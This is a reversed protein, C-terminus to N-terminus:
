PVRSYSHRQRKAQQMEINVLNEPASATPETPNTSTAMSKGSIGNVAARLKKKLPETALLFAGTSAAPKTASRRKSRRSSKNFADVDDSLEGASGAALNEMNINTAIRSRLAPWRELFNLPLTAGRLSNIDAVAEQIEVTSFSSLLDGKLNHLKEWILPWKEVLISDQDGSCIEDIADLTQQLEGMVLCALDKLSDRKHGMRTSQFEEVESEAPVSVFRKRWLPAIIELVANKRIPAKSIFGHARAKYTKIDLSSDNASRVLGLIRAEEEPNLNSRIRQICESGSITSQIGDETIDLNEDVILLFKDLPHREVLQIIFNVFSKCEDSTGGLVLRRSPDIGAYQFFPGLLKRQIKSDDIAIGWTNSPLKFTKSNVERHVKDFCIAPCAFSFVTRTPEFRISAKGKLTEACKRMIWAGDGASLTKAEPLCHQAQHLRTGPAFVANNAEEEGVILLSQHRDGPNNIVDMKFLEKSSDFYVTTTVVGGKEGYKCANSTANRHIYKLLQRDFYLLPLPSPETLIPFRSDNSRNVTSSSLTENINVCEMKPEYVGHIVDRAMTESLITDLVDKLTKDLEQTCGSLENSPPQKHSIPSQISPNSQNSHQHDTHMTRTQVHTVAADQLPDVQPPSANALHATEKLSECLGIAALLGNKVEHRTFRNAEADKRRATTEFIMRKEAEFRESRDSIDRVVILLSDDELHCVNAECSTFVQEEGTVKLLKHNLSVADKDINWARAVFGAISSLAREDFNSAPRDLFGEDEFRQTAPEQGWTLHGFDMTQVRKAKVNSYARKQVAELEIDFLLAKSSEESIHAHYIKLYSSSVMTRITGSTGLVSVCIVDTSSEWVASILRRLEGLRREAREKDDFAVKHVEVIINMYLNKLIVDMGCEWLMNLSEEKLLTHPPAYLSGLGSVCYMVVLGTWATSCCIMLQYSLRARDYLEGQHSSTGPTMQRFRKQKQRLVPFLYFFLVFSVIMVITWCLTNCFPLFWGCLTSLGQTAGLIYSLKLSRTDIADSLFTMYFALPTWECWRLLHVRNHFIPDIVVPTKMGSAMMFNTLMAITQVTICGLLVGSMSKTKKIFFVTFLRGILGFLLFISGLFPAIREMGELVHFRESPVFTYTMTVLSLWLTFTGAAAIRFHKDRRQVDVLYDSLGLQYFSSFEDKHEAQQGETSSKLKMRYM